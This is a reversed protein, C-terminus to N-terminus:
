YAELSSATANRRKKQKALGGSFCRQKPCEIHLEKEDM